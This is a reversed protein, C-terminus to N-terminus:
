LGNLYEIRENLKKIHEDRYHNLIKLADEVRIYREWLNRTGDTFTLVGGSETVEKIELVENGLSDEVPDDSHRTCWLVKDGPKLDEPHTRIERYNM